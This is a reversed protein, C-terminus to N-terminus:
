TFLGRGNLPHGAGHDAFLAPQHPTGLVCGLGHLVGAWRCGIRGSQAAPVGAHALRLLCGRQRPAIDVQVSTIVAPEGGLALLFVLRRDRVLERYEGRHVVTADRQRSEFRFAGGVRADISATSHACTATAFLWRAAISPDIWADFVRAAPAGYHCGLQVVPATASGVRGPGGRGAGAAAPCAGTGVPESIRSDRHIRM